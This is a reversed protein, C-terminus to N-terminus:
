IGFPEVHGGIVFNNVYGRLQELGQEYLVAWPGAKVRIDFMALQVLTGYIVTRHAWPPLIPADTGGLVSVRKEFWYRIDYAADPLPFWTLVNTETGAAAYTKTHQYRTPRTASGTAWWYEASQNKAGVKTSLELEEPSIPLCPQNDVSVSIIREVNKGSTALTTTRTSAVTDLTADYDILWPPISRGKRFEGIIDGLYVNNIVNDIIAGVTTDDDDILAQVQSKIDAYTLYDAM